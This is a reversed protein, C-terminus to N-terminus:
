ASNRTWGSGSLRTALSKVRARSTTRMPLKQPVQDSPRLATQTGEGGKTLLAVSVVLAVLLVGVAVIVSPKSAYRMLAARNVEPMVFRSTGPPVRGTLGRNGPLERCLQTGGIDAYVGDFSGDASGFAPKRLRVAPLQRGAVQDAVLDGCVLQAVAQIDDSLGDVWQPDATVGPAVGSQVGSRTDYLHFDDAGVSGLVAAVALVVGPLPVAENHIRGHEVDVLRHLQHASSKSVSTGGLPPHEQVSVPNLAEEITSFAYAPVRAGSDDDPTRARERVRTM